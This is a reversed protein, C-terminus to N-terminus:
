LVIKFIICIIIGTIVGYMDFENEIKFDRFNDPNVYLRVYDGINRKILSTDNDCVELFPETQYKYVYSILRRGNVTMEREGAVFSDKVLWGSNLFKKISLYKGSLYGCVFLMFAVAFTNFTGFILIGAISLILALISFILVKM